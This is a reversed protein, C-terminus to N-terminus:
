HKSICAMFTDQVLQMLLECFRTHADIETHNLQVDQGHAIEHRRKVLEKDLKIRHKEFPTPDIGMLDFIERLREFDLNSRPLVVKREFAVASLTKTRALIIESAM